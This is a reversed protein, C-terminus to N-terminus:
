PPSPRLHPRASAPWSPASAASGARHFSSRPSPPLASTPWPSRATVPQSLDLSRLVVLLTIIHLASYPASRRVM